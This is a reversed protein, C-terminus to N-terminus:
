SNVCVALYFNVYVGPWFTCINGSLFTCISGISTLSLSLLFVYTLINILLAVFEDSVLRESISAVLVSQFYVLGNISSLAEFQNYIMIFQCWPESTFHYVLLEATAATAIRVACLIHYLYLDNGPIATTLMCITTLM